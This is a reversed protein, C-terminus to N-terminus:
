GDKQHLLLAVGGTGSQVQVMKLPMGKTGEDNMLYILASDLVGSDELFCRLDGVTWHPYSLGKKNPRGQDMKRREREECELRHKMLDHETSIINFRTHRNVAPLTITIEGEVPVVRHYAEPHCGPCPRTMEGPSITGTGGCRECMAM